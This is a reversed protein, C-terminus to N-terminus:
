NHKIKYLTATLTHVVLRLTLFGVNQGRLVQMNKMYRLFFANFNERYLM